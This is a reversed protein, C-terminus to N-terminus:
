ISIDAYVLEEDLVDRVFSHVKMFQDTTDCTIKKTEGDSSYLYFTKAPVNVVCRTLYVDNDTLDM